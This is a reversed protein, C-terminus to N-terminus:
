GTTQWFAGAQWHRRWATSDMARWWAEGLGGNHNPYLDSVLWQEPQLQPILIDGLDEGTDNADIGLYPIIFRNILVANGIRTPLVPKVILADASGDNDMGDYHWYEIPVSIMNGVPNQSKKALDEQGAAQDEQAAAPQAMCVFVAFVILILWKKVMPSCAANSCDMHPKDNHLISIAIKKM